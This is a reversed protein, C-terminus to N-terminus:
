IAIKGSPTGSIVSGNFFKNFDDVSVPSVPQPLAVLELLSVLQPLSALQLQSVPLPRVALQLRSVLQLRVVLQPRVSPPVLFPQPLVAGVSLVSRFVLQPLM